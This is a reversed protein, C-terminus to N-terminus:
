TRARERKGIRRTARDYKHDFSELTEVKYRSVSDICPVLADYGCRSHCFATATKALEIAKIRRSYSPNNSPKGYSSERRSKKWGESPKGYSSERRSKKWGEISEDIKWFHPSITTVSFRLHHAKGMANGTDGVEGIKEGKRVLQLLRVNSKKM